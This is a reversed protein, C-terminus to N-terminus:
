HKRIAPAFAGAEKLAAALTPDNEIVHEFRYRPHANVSLFDCTWYGHTAGREFVPRKPQRTGERRPSSM